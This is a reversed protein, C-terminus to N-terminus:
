WGIVIDTEASFVVKLTIQELKWINDQRENSQM